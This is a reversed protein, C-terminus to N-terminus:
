SVLNKDRGNYMEQTGEELGPGPGPRASGLRLRSGLSPERRKLARAQDLRAWARAKSGLRARCMVVRMRARRDYGISSLGGILDPDM